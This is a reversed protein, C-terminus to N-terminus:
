FGGFGGMGGDFGGGGSHMSSDNVGLGNDIGHYNHDVVADIGPHLYPNTMDEIMQQQILQDQLIQQELGQNIMLQVLEDHNMQALQEQTFNLNHAHNMLSDVLVASSLGSLMSITSNRSSSSVNGQPIGRRLYQKLTVGYKIRVYINGLVIIILFAVFLTAFM